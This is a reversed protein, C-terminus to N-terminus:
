RYSSRRDPTFRGNGMGRWVQYSEVGAVFVDFLGDGTVDGLAIAEYQEYSIKQGHRFQGTGDNFWVQASEEGGTVLDLIGDGDLDILFLSRTLGSGLHQSSDHFYGLGDNLWIEDAGRNGVVADLFDDGNVDGLAVATSKSTGLQQGSDHFQGQGDNFWVTNPAGKQFTEDAQVTLSNALFADETGDGNLDGLAVAQSGLQGIPTATVRFRGAGDNLWVQSGSFYVQSDTDRYTAVIGCCGAGFIDLYGDNNLDALAVQVRNTGESSNFASYSDKYLGDGYNAYLKATYSGTAVDLWGDGNVDGLKASFSPTAGFDQGSDHFRGEGENFLLYDPHVYPEGDPAIALYVDLLGDGTLDGLAIEQVQPPQEFGVTRIAYVLWALFLPLLCVVLRIIKRRPILHGALGILSDGSAQAALVSRAQRAYFQQRLSGLLLGALERLFYTLLTPHGHAAAAQLQAQFVAEMEEAFEQRFHPSFLRLFCRYIRALWRYDAVSKEGPM